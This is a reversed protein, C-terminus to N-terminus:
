CSDMTSVEAIWTEIFRILVSSYHDSDFCNAAFVKCRAYLLKKIAVGTM